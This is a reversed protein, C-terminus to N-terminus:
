GIMPLEQGVAHLGSAGQKAPSSPRLDPPGRLEPLAAPTGDQARDVPM